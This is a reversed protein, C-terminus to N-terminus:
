LTELLQLVKKPVKKKNSDNKMFTLLRPCKKAVEEIKDLPLNYIKFMNMKEFLTIMKPWAFENFHVNM